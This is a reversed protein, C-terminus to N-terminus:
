ISEYDGDKHKTMGDEKMGIAFIDCGTPPYTALKKNPDPKFKKLKKFGMMRRLIGTFRNVNPTMSEPNGNSFLTNKVLEEHEKPFSVDWLQIPCVRMGLAKNEGKYKFPLYKAALETIFRKMCNIEGRTIFSIHM